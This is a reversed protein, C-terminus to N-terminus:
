EGLEELAESIARSRKFIPADEPIGQLSPSLAKIQEHDLSSAKLLHNRAKSSDGLHKYTFGSLFTRSLSDPGGTGLNFQASELKEIWKNIELLEDLPAIGLEELQKQVDELVDRQKEESEDLHWLNEGLLKPKQPISRLLNLRFHCFVEDPTILGDIQHITSDDHINPIFHFYCGCSVSFTSKPVKNKEQESKRLFPIEIVDTKDNGIRWYVHKKKHCFGRTNLLPDLHSFLVKKAQAQTLNQSREKDKKLSFNNRTTLGVWLKEM